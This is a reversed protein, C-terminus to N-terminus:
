EVVVVVTQSNGENDIATINHRGKPLYVSINHFDTTKTFYEGDIHWFIEADNNQHVLEFM